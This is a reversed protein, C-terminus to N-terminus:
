GGPKAELVRYDRPRILVRAKSGEVKLALKAKKRGEPTTGELFDGIAEDDLPKEKADIGANAAAATEEAIEAADAVAVQPPDLGPDLDRWTISGVKRGPFLAQPNLEIAVEHDVDRDFNSVFVIARDDAAYVASLVNAKEPKAVKVVNDADWWPFVRLPKDYIKTEVLKQTLGNSLTQIDSTAFLADEARRQPYAWKEAALGPPLGRPLTSLFNVGAGWKAAPGLIRLTEPNWFDMADRKGYPEVGTVFEGNSLYRCFSFLPVEYCVTMHAWICPERGAAEFLRWLRMNVRRMALTTFGVRRGNKSGAYEYATSDLSYTNGVSVDDWYVGDIVGRKLFENIAWVAYDECEPTWAVNGTGNWLDHNWDRFAPGLNPFAADAYLICRGWKARCQPAMAEAHDWSRPELRFCDGNIPDAPDTKLDFGGFTDCSGFNVGGAAMQKRWDVPEPKAPTPLLIFHFRRGAAPIKTPERIVNMRFVVADKERLIEQAPKPGDVTWGQDNEAGFYLGVDDAGLWIHPMFNTVGEARGFSPYPQDSSRWVSGEGAPLMTAIWSNRFDNGGGNALLQTAEAPVMPVDIDLEDLTAEAGSAPKLTVACYLLGDFELWADVDAKIGVGALAAKWEVRDDATAGLKVGEGALAADGGPGAARMAIPRVLIQRGLTEIKEPLGGQGLEIRRGVLELSQGSAKIPTWPKPITREEGLINGLWEPKERVYDIKQEALVKGSADRSRVVAPYRGFPLAKDITFKATSGEDLSQKEAALLVEGAATRIEFDASAPKADGVQLCGIAAVLKEKRDWSHAFYDFQTQFVPLPKMQTAADPLWRAYANWAENEDMAWDYVTFEDVLTPSKTFALTWTDDIDKGGTRERWKELPERSYPHGSVVFGAQHLRQRQGNISVALSGGKISALVHTWTGPHIKQWRVAGDQGSRGLRVEINKSPSAFPADKATLTMLWNVKVDAGLYDGLYFNNWNLPRFWFEVTGNKDPLIDFGKMAFGTKDIASLDLAKGQVGPQFNAATAKGAWSRGAFPEPELSGDFHFRTLVRGSKFYPAKPELSEPTRAFELRGLDWPYIHRVGKSLRVEDVSGVLGPQGEAGGATLRSGVARLVGKMWPIPNFPDPRRAAAITGDVIVVFTYADAHGRPVDVVLSVHHWGDATPPCAATIRDTGTVALVVKEPDDLRLDLLPRGERDPITLLTQPKDAPASKAARFWFDITFGGENAVLGSFDATGEAYGTGDVALGGGFRGADDALKAKGVLQPPKDGAEAAAAGGATSLPGDDEELLDDLSGKELLEGAAKDRDAATVFKWFFVTRLDPKTTEIWPTAHEPVPKTAMFEFDQAAACTAFGCACVLGMLGKRFRPSSAIWGTAPIQNVLRINIAARCGGAEAPPKQRVMRRPPM